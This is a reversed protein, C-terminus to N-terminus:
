VRGCEAYKERFAADKGGFFAMKDKDKVVTQDGGRALAMEM